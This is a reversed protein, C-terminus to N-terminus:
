LGGGMHFCCSEKYLHLWKAVYPKPLSRERCLILEDLLKKVWCLKSNDAACAALVHLEEPPRASLDPSM